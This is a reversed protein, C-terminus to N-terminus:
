RGLLRVNSEETDLYHAQITRLAAGIAGLSDAVRTSTTTWEDVLGAFAIAAPGSWSGDLARLQSTLSAIDSQLSDMTRSIHTAADDLARPDVQFSTM